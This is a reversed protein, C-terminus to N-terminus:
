GGVTFSKSEGSSLLCEVTFAGGNLMSDEIVENTGSCQKVAHGEAHRYAVVLTPTTGAISLRRVTTRTLSDVGMTPLDKPLQAFHDSKYALVRDMIGFLERGLAAAETVDQAAAVPAAARRTPGGDSDAPAKVGFCATTACLALVLLPRM